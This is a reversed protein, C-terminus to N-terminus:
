QPHHHPHGCLHPAGRHCEPGATVSLFGVAFGGLQCDRWVFKQSEKQELGLVPIPLVQNRRQRGEFSFPTTVIAVTLIGMAKATAAVVPAAGSGTGGGMGAQLECLIDSPEVNLTEVPFGAECQKSGCYQGEAWHEVAKAAQLRNDAFDSRNLYEQACFHRVTVFVM